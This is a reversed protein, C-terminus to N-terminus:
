FATESTISDTITIPIGAVSTPEPAFVDTGNNTAAGRNTISTASRSRQLWFATNREMFVMNPKMGIPFKSLVESALADTLPKLTTINKVYGVSNSSACSLGIYGSLNNVWAMYKKSNSDTVQQLNWDKLNLGQQNGWIYHIGKLGLNVFWARYSTSSGTADVTLATNAFDKLGPHGKADNATGNYFQKGLYIMKSMVIGSAEDALVEGPSDNIGAAQIVAEDTQLQADFFFCEFRKQEYVSSGVEVGENANRFAGKDHIAARVRALYSTGAIARGSVADLEPAYTTVEEVLGVAGDTGNRKTIELLTLLKDAM